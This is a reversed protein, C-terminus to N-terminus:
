CGLLVVCWLVRKPALKQFPRSSSDGVYQYVPFFILVEVANVLVFSFMVEKMWEVVIM